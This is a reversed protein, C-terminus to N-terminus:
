PREVGTTDEQVHDRRHGVGASSRMLRGRVSVITDRLEPSLGLIVFGAAVVGASSSIVLELIPPSTLIWALGWSASIAVIAGVSGPLWAKLMSVFRVSLVRSAVVVLLISSLATAGIMAICLIILGGSEDALWAAFALAFVKLGSSIWIVISLTGPRNRAQLAPGLLLSIASFAQMITLLRIATATGDWEQGLIEELPSAAGAVLGLLPLAMM